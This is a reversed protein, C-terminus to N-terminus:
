KAKRVYEDYLVLYGDKVALRDDVQTVFPEDNEDDIHITLENFKGDYMLNVEILDEPHPVFRFSKM